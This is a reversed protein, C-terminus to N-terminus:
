AEYKFHLLTDRALALVKEGDSADAPRALAAFAPRAPAAKACPVYVSVKVEVTASASACGALILLFALMGYPPPRPIM